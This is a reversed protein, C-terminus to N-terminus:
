QSDHTADQMLERPSVNYSRLKDTTIVRRNGSELIRKFFRKAAQANRRTQLFVDVVGGYQDVARWLYYQKGEIKVFVKDIFLSDGFGHHKKKLKKVYRPGFKNVWLRIFEYSVIIGRQALLDEVDRTSINFRFYAWVAYQIVEPPFRHGKYM